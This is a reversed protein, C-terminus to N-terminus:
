IKGAKIPKNQKQTVKNQSPPTARRNQPQEQEKESNKKQKKIFTDKSWFISSTLIIAKATQFFNKFLLWIEFM